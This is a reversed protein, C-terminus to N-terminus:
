EGVWPPPPQVNQAGVVCSGKYSSNSVVMCCGVHALVQNVNSWRNGLDRLGTRRVSDSDLSASLLKQRACHAGMDLARYAMMRQQEVCEWITHPRRDHPRTPRVVYRELM